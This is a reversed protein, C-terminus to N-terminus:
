GRWMHPVLVVSNHPSLLYSSSTCLFSPPLYGMNFILALYLCAHQCLQGCRNTHLICSFHPPFLTPLTFPFLHTTRLQTRGGSSQYSFTRFMVFNQSTRYQESPMRRRKRQSELKTGNHNSSNKMFVLLTLGFEATNKRKPMTCQCRRGGM